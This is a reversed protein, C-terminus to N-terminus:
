FQNTKDFYGSLKELQRYRIPLLNAQELAEQLAQIVRFPIIAVSHVEYNSPSIERIRFDPLTNISFEKNLLHSLINEAHAIQELKEKTILVNYDFRTLLCPKAKQNANDLGIDQAINKIDLKSFGGEVLPSRINLEQLAKIGPRHIKTDDFHTGDCLIKHPCFTLLASFVAHKCHYCRLPANNKIQAISLADLPINQLSFQHTNAWEQMYNSEQADIHAGIIHLLKIDKIGIHKAFFALFRSDLGGSCAIYLPTDLNKLIQTLIEIKKQTSM